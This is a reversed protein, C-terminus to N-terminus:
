CYCCFVFPCLMHKGLKYLIHLARPVVGLVSFYHCRKIRRNQAIQRSLLSEGKIERDRNEWLWWRHKIKATHTRAICLASCLQGAPQPWGLQGEQVTLIPHSPSSPGPSLCVRFLWVEWSHGQPRPQSPSVMYCLHGQVSRGGAHQSQLDTLAM